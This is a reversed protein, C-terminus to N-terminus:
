PSTPPSFHQCALWNNARDSGVLVAMENGVNCAISPIGNIPQQTAGDIFFVDGVLAPPSIVPTCILTDANGNQGEFYGSMFSGSPCGHIRKIKRDPGPVSLISGASATFPTGMQYGVLQRCVATQQGINIVGLGWGSSCVLTSSVVVGPPIQASAKPSFALVSFALAIGYFLGKIIRVM